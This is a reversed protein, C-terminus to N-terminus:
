QHLFGKATRWKSNALDAARLPQNNANPRSVIINLLSFPKYDHILCFQVICQDFKSQARIGPGLVWCGPGLVLYQGM